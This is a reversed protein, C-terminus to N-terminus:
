RGETARAKIGIHPLLRQLGYVIPAAGWSTYLDYLNGEDDVNGGPLDKAVNYNGVWAGHIRPDPDQLQVRVFFDALRLGAHLFREDGTAEYAECFGQPGWNQSYILNVCDNEAQKVAGSSHQRPALYRLLDDLVQRYEPKKTIRYALAYPTLM